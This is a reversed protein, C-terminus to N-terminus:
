HFFKQTLPSVYPKNCIALFNKKVNYRKVNEGFIYLLEIPEVNEDVSLIIM